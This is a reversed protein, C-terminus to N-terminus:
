VPPLQTRQKERKLKSWRLFEESPPEEEYLRPRIAELLQPEMGSYEAATTVVHNMRKGMDFVNAARTRWDESRLLHHELILAAVKGALKGANDLGKRVTAKDVKVGELYAPPGGLVVFDPQDKLIM